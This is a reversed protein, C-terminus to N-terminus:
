RYFSQQKMVQLKLFNWNYRYKEKRWKTENLNEANFNTVNSSSFKEPPYCTEQM